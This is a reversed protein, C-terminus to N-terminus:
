MPQSTYAANSSAKEEDIASDKILQSKRINSVTTDVKVRTPTSLISAQTMAPKVM